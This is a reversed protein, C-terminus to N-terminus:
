VDQRVIDSILVGHVVEGMISKASTLLQAKLKSLNNSNTFSGDFGGIHAYDFLVQLFEDRLKPEYSYVDEVKGKKAEISLSLVVLSKVLDDSVVPVVFQNNLKVFEVDVPESIEISAPKEDPTCEALETDKEPPALFMGAGVGGALGFIVFIVPILKKM